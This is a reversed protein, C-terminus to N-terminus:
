NKVEEARKSEAKEEAKEAEKAGDEGGSSKRLERIASGLSKGLEPLKRPGFIVLVIALILLLEGWGLWPFIM